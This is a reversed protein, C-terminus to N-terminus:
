TAVDDDTVTVIDSKSTGRKQNKEGLVLAFSRQSTWRTEHEQRMEPTVLGRMLWEWDGDPLEIKLFHVLIGRFLSLSVYESSGPGVDDFSTDVFSIISSKLSRVTIAEDGGLASLVISAIDAIRISGSLIQQGLLKARASQLVDQLM